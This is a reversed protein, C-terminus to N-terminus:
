SFDLHLLSVDSSISIFWHFTQTFNLHLLSIDPSISIFRHFTQSFNLHLLSIDQHFQCSSIFHRPSISIFWHFTQTFNLHVLSVDLQLQSSGIFHRPSISILWHFTWTFNIHVLSIDLHFQSSHICHRPSHFQSLGIFSNSNLNQQLTRICVFDLSFCASIRLNVQIFPLDLQRQHFIDYKCVIKIPIFSPWFISVVACSTSRHVQYHQKYM